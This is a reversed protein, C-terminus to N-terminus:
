TPDYRTIARPLHSLQGARWGGIVKEDDQAPVLIGTLVYLGTDAFKRWFRGGVIVRAGSGFAIEVQDAHEEEFDFLLQSTIGVTVVAKDRAPIRADGVQRLTFRNLGHDLGEIVGDVVVHENQQQKLSALLAQTEKRIRRTLKVPQSRGSWEGTVIVSEINQGTAPPALAEVAELVARREEVTEGRLM